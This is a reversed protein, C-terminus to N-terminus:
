AGPPPFPDGAVVPDVLLRVLHQQRLLAVLVGLLQERRGAQRRGSRAEVVRVVDREDMVQIRRQARVRQEMAVLMVDHLVAFHDDDVLEGAPQHRAPAPGVAQVLRDLRLFAHRDLALVLRERRDRELVVEAHVPLEGAHGAGRIGLRELELLDVVQFRHDDRRVLRHDALVLVVEDEARECSFTLAITASM